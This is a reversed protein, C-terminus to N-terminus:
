LTRWYQITFGGASRTIVAEVQKTYGGVTAFSQVLFTNGTLVLMGAANTDMGPFANIKERTDFPERGRRDLILSAVSASLGLSQLVESPATNINIQSGPQVTVLGHVKGFEEDSMLQHLEGLLKVSRKERLRDLVDTGVGRAEFLKELRVLSPQGTGLNALSIKGAEDEWRVRLETDGGSV